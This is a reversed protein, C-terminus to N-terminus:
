SRINGVAAVMTVSYVLVSAIISKGSVPSSGTVTAGKPTPLTFSQRGRLWRWSFPTAADDGCGPSSIFSQLSPAEYGRRKATQISRSPHYQYQYQHRDLYPHQHPYPQSCATCQLSNM